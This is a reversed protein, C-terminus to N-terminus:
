PTLRQERQLETAEQTPMAERPGVSRAGDGPTGRGHADDERNGRALAGGCQAGLARAGGWPAGPARTDDWLAGHALARAWLAGRTTWRESYEIPRRNQEVYNMDLAIKKM